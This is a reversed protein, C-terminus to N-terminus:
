ALYIIGMIDNRVAGVVYFDLYAKALAAILAEAVAQICKCSDAGYKM